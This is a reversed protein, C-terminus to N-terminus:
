ITIFLCKNPINLKIYILISYRLLGISINDFINWFLSANITEYFIGVTIYSKSWLSNELYNRLM